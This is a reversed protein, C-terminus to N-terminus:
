LVDLILPIDYVVATEPATGSVALYFQTYKETKGIV